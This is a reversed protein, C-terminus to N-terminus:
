YEDVIMEVIFGEDLWSFVEEITDESDFNLEYAGLAYEMARFYTSFVVDEVRYITM